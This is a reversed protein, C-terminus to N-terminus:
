RKNADSENANGEGAGAGAGAGGRVGTKEMWARLQEQDIELTGEDEEGPLDAAARTVAEGRSALFDEVDGPAGFWGYRDAVLHQSQCGPCRVIVVGNEYAQRSFGKVARVGCKGCTFMMYLDKRPNAAAADAVSAEADGAPAAAPAADAPVRPSADDAFGRATFGLIHDAPREALAARSAIGPPPVFARRAALPATAPEASAVRRTASAFARALAARARSRMTRDVLRSLRATDRTADHFRAPAFHAQEHACRASSRTVRASDTQVDRVVEM